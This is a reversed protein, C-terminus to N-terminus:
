LNSTAATDLNFPKEGNLTKEEWSVSVIEVGEDPINTLHEAKTTEVFIAASESGSEDSDAAYAKEKKKRWNEQGKKWWKPANNEAGGGKEWCKERIHGTRKCLSCKPRQKNQARNSQAAMLNEDVNSRRNEQAEIEIRQVIDEVTLTLKSNTLFSILKKRLWSYNPTNLANLLLVTTWEDKTPVEPQPMDDI